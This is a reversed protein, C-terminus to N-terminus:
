QSFNMVCYKPLNLVFLPLCTSTKLLAENIGFLYLYWHSIQGQEDENLVLLLRIAVFTRTTFSGEDTSVRLCHNEVISDQLGLFLLTLM